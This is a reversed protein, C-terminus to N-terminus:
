CTGSEMRMIGRIKHRSGGGDPKARAQAGVVEPTKRGLFERTTDCGGTEAAHLEGKALGDLSHVEFGKSQSRRRKFGHQRPETLEVAAIEAMGDGALRSYIM